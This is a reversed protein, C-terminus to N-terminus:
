PKPSLVCKATAHIKQGFHIIRNHKCYPCCYYKYRTPCYTATDNDSYIFDGLEPVHMSTIVNVITMYTLGARVAHVKKQNSLVCVFLSSASLRWVYDQGVQVCAFYIKPGIRTEFRSRSGPHPVNVCRGGIDKTAIVYQPLASICYAIYNYYVLQRKWTNKDRPHNV